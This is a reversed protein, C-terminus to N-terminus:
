ILDMFTWGTGLRHAATFGGGGLGYWAFLAYSFNGVYAKALLDGNGDRNLDTMGTLDFYGTWGCGIQYGTGFSGRGDGYWRYMCDTNKAIAVLDPHGDRNLDGAATLDRYQEWGCGLEVAASFGGQGNGSWRYLCEDGTAWMALLDAKGDNTIDGPGILTDFTEWGCGVVAGNGLGGQGNGWWRWLCKQEYINDSIAMVDGVGDSNMDGVAAPRQYDGWGCGLRAAANLGGSGTGSWRYLCGVTGAAQEQNIALLDSVGDRNYDDRRDGIAALAPAPLLAVLVAVVLVLVSGRKWM